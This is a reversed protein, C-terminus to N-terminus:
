PSGRGIHRECADDMGGPQTVVERVEDGGVPEQFVGLSSLQRELYRHRLRSLEEDGHPAQALSQVLAAAETGITALDLKDAEAQQKLDAPGYYADVYDKDHAGMALVLRVYKRAIDQMSDRTETGASMTALAALCTARILWERM